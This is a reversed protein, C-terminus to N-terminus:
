SLHVNFEVLRMTGYVELQFYRIELNQIAM